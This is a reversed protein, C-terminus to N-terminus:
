KNQTPLLSLLLVKAQSHRLFGVPLSHGHCWTQGLHIVNVRWAESVGMPLDDSIGALSKGVGGLDM